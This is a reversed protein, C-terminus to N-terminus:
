DDEGHCRSDSPALTPFRSLIMEEEKEEEEEEEEEEEGKGGGGGGRGDDKQTESNIVKAATSLEDCVDIVNFDVDILEARM